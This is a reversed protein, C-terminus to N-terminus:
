LGIDVVTLLQTKPCKYKIGGGEVPGYKFGVLLGFVVVSLVLRKARVEYVDQWIDKRSPRHQWSAYYRGDCV